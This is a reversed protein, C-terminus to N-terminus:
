RQEGGEAPLQLDDISLQKHSSFYKEYGIIGCHKFFYLRASILDVYEGATDTTLSPNTQRGNEIDEVTLTHTHPHAHHRALYYGARTTGHFGNVRFLLIDGFMLGISFDQPQVQSWSIFVTFQNGTETEQVMFKQQYNKNVRVVERPKALFVKPCVILRNIEADTLVIEPM